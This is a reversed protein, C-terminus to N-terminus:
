PMGCLLQVKEVILPVTDSCGEWCNSKKWLCLFLTVADWVVYCNFKKVILPFLTMADCFFVVQVKEVTFCHWQMPFGLLDNAVRLLM